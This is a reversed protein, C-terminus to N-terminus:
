EYNMLDNDQRPWSNRGCCFYDNIPVNTCSGKKNMIWWIMTKDQDLAADAIFIIMLQCMQAPGAINFSYVFSGWSKHVMKLIM